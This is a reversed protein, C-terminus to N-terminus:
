YQRDKEALPFLAPSARKAAGCRFRAPQCVSTLREKGSDCHLSRKRLFIVSNRSVGGTAAATDAAFRPQEGGGIMRSPRRPSPDFGGKRSGIRAAHRSILRNRWSRLAYM